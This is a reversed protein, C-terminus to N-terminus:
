LASILQSVLGQIQQALALASPVPSGTPPPIIAFPNTFLPGWSGGSQVGVGVPPTFVETGLPVGAPAKGLYGKAAGVEVYTEFFIFETPGNWGLNSTFTPTIYPPNVVGPQQPWDEATPVISVTPTGYETPPFWIGVFGWPMTAAPLPQPNSM